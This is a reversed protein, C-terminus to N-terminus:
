CPSPSMSLFQHNSLSLCLRPLRHRDWGIWEPLAHVTTQWFLDDGVIVGTHAPRSSFDGQICIEKPSCLIPHESLLASVGAIELYKSSDKFMCFNVKLQVRTPM